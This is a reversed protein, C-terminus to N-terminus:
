AKACGLTSISSPTVRPTRTPLPIPCPLAMTISFARFPFSPLKSAAALPPRQRQHVPGAFRYVVASHPIYGVMIATLHSKGPLVVARFNALERQMRHTKSNPGDFQGNIALVPIKITALDIRGREEEKWPYQRVAGLAEVDQDTRARLKGSAEAEQPDPGPEDAPVQEKLKPDTEPVGSGGYSATIFRDPQVALLQTVLFGGMSYGHVHAKAIKLHDMLEIVDKAMQPGYKTPDHPKESQGHGRCDIAVVRHNKALANAVGNAFWNGRASGGYGHILVVPSGNGAELYHIKMGDSAIFTGDVPEVAALAACPVVFITLLLLGLATQVGLPYRM